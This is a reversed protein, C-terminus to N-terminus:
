NMPAVFAGSVFWITSTHNVPKSYSTKVRRAGLRNVQKEYVYVPKSMKSAALIADTISNSYVFKQGAQLTIM